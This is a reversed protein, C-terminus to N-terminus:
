LPFDLCLFYPQGVTEVVTHYEKSTQLEHIGVYAIPPCSLEPINWYLCLVSKENSRFTIVGFDRLLSLFNKVHM